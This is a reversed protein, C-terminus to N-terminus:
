EEDDFDDLDDDIDFDDIDDEDDDWDEDDLDDEDDWDEDDLEDDLDDDLDDDFDDEFDFDDEDDDISSLEIMGIIESAEEFKSEPVLVPTGGLQVANMETIEDELLAPINNEQLDAKLMKSQEMSEPIAVTVFNEFDIDVFNYKCMRLRNDTKEMPM